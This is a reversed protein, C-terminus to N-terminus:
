PEIAQPELYAPITRDKAAIAKAADKIGNELVLKIFATTGDRDVLGQNLEAAAKFKALARDVAKQAAKL